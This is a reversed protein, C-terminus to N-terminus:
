IENTSVLVTGATAYNLEVFLIVDTMTMPQSVSVISTIYEKLITAAAGLGCPMVVWFVVTM